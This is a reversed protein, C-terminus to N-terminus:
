SRLCGIVGALLRRGDLWLLLVGCGVLAIALISFLLARNLLQGGIRRQDQKALTEKVELRDLQAAHHAQANKATQQEVLTLREGHEILQQFIFYDDDLRRKVLGTVEPALEPKLIARLAATNRRLDELELDVSPDAADGLRIKQGERIRLRRGYEYLKREAEQRDEDSIAM